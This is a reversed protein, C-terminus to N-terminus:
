VGHLLFSAEALEGFGLYAGAGIGARALAIGLHVGARADVVLLGLVALGDLARRREVGRVHLQGVFAAHGPEAARRGVQLVREGAIGRRHGLAVAFFAGVHGIM